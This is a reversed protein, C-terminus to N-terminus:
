RWIERRRRHRYEDASWTWPPAAAREPPICRHWILRPHTGLPVRLTRSCRKCVIRLKM